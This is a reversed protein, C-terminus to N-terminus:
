RHPADDRDEAGRMAASIPKRETSRAIRISTALPRPTPPTATVADADTGAIRQRAWQRARRASRAAARMPATLRFSMSSLAAALESEAYQRAARAQLLDRDRQEIQRDRQEIQRDRQEMERDLRALETRSTQQQVALSARLAQIERGQQDLELDRSRIAQELGAMTSPVDGVACEGEISVSAVRGAIPLHIMPDLTTFELTDAGCQRSNSSAQALDLRTVLGESDQWVVQRLKVRCLRGELPHWRLHSVERPPDIRFQLAFSPAYEVQEQVLVTEDGDPGVVTSLSATQWRERHPIGRFAVESLDLLLSDPGAVREAQQACIAILYAIEKDDGATLHFRGDDLRMQHELIRGSAPELNWMYSVPYVHQSMLRVHAFSRHLFALFEDKSFEHFHYPNGQVGDKSYTARNPTSVLLVGDPKLLRGVEAAFRDQGEQDLHEITEFSVIVDFCHEGPIPIAEAGGQIYHLNDRSYSRRAHQVAEESIDVGYVLRAHAALFASGYGEGSAVDLVCKGEVFPLAYSYRHWHEYSVFPEYPAFIPNGVRPFYREGTIRMFRSEM